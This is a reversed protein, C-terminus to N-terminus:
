FTHDPSPQLWGMNKQFLDRSQKATCIDHYSVLRRGLQKEIKPKTCSGAFFLHEVTELAENAKHLYKMNAYFRFQHNTILGDELVNMVIRNDKDHWRQGEGLKEDVPLPDPVIEYRGLPLKIEEALYKDVQRRVTPSLTLHHKGREKRSPSRPSFSVLRPSDAFNGRANPCYINGLAAARLWSASDVTYWQTFNMLKFSTVAFGHTRVKPKGESDLLTPLVDRVMWRIRQDTTRDNAPSIGLYFVGEDIYRKLWKPDDGQHYVPCLWENPIGAELMTRWNTYGGQAAQEIAQPTLSKPDGPVGPIIDLNVIACHRHLNDLAFKIYADLDVSQGTNWVAFAGSDLIIRKCVM